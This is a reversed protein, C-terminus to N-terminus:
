SARRFKKEELGIQVPVPKPSAFITTMPLASRLWRRVRADRTAQSLVARGLPIHIPVAALVVPDFRSAERYLDPEVLAAGAEGWGSVDSGSVGSPVYLHRTMTRYHISGLLYSIIGLGVWDEDPLLELGSREVEVVSPRYGRSGVVARQVHEVAAPRSSTLYVYGPFPRQLVSILDQRGEHIQRGVGVMRRLSGVPDSMLETDAGFAEKPRLYGDRMIERYAEPTTGHYLLGDGRSGSSARSALALAALGAAVWYRGDQSVEEVQSLHPHHRPDM